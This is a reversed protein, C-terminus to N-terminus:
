RLLLIVNINYVGNRGHSKCRAAFFPGKFYPDPFFTEDRQMNRSIDSLQWARRVDWVLHAAHTPRPIGKFGRDPFAGMWVQACFTDGHMMCTARVPMYSFKPKQARFRIQGVTVCDALLYFLWSVPAELVSSCNNAPNLGLSAAEFLVKFCHPKLWMLPSGQLCTEFAPRAWLYSNSKVLTLMVVKRFRLWIMNLRFKKLNSTTFM